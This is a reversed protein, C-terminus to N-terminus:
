RDLADPNSSHPHEDQSKDRLYYGIIIILGNGIMWAFAIYSSLRLTWDVIPDDTV